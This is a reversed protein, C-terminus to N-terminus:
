KNIDFSDKDAENIYVKVEPTLAMAYNYLVKNKLGEITIDILQKFTEFNSHDDVSIYVIENNDDILNSKDISLLDKYYTVVIKYNGAPIDNDYAISINNNLPAIIEVKDKLKTLNYTVTRKNLNTDVFIDSISFELTEFAMTIIGAIVFCFAIILTIFHKKM